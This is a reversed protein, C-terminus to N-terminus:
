TAADYSFQVDEFDDATLVYGEYGSKWNKTAKSEAEQIDEAEIFVERSLTETM